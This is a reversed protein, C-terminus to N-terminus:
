HSLNALPKLYMTRHALTRLLFDAPPKQSCIMNSFHFYHNANPNPDDQSVIDPM